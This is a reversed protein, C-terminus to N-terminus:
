TIRDHPFLAQFKHVLPRTGLKSGYISLYIPYPARITQSYDIVTKRHRHTGFTFRQKTM